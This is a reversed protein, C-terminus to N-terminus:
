RVGELVDFFVEAERQFLYYVEGLSQHHQVAARHSVVTRLDTSESDLVTEINDELGMRISLPLIPWVSLFTHATQTFNLIMFM